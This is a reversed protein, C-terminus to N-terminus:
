RPVKQARVEWRAQGDLLVLLVVAYPHVLRAAHRISEILPTGRRLLDRCFIGLTNALDQDLTLHPSLADVMM